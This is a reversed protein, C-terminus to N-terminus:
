IAVKESSHLGGGSQSQLRLMFICYGEPYDKREILGQHEGSHNFLTLNCSSYDNQQFKPKSPECPTFMGNVTAELYNLNYHYFNFPTKTYSGSYAKSSCLALVMSNPICGHYVDEVGWEYNSYQLNKCRVAM